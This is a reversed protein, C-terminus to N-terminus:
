ETQFGIRLGAFAGFGPTNNGYVEAYNQDLLNEIRGFLEINETLAYSGALSVLVFDDLTRRVSPFVGFDTDYQQGNYEIGLNVNARSEMFEYNAFLSAIHRPRRIETAGDPQGADLYTYAADIRFGEFPVTGVSVELGQRRSEGDLNVVTGVFGGMGDPVFVNAIEDELNQHFYTVDVVLREDLLTQEVGVDFGKSTEPQLNPNGIFDNFLGFIEIFTPNKVGTGYSGHLRTGTDEFLYAATTRWTTSDDFIENDDYRVGGSLFLRDWLAVRYEGAYGYRTEDEKFNPDGFVSPMGAQRYSEYEREAYLSVTHEANAVSPTEFFVNTQYDLIFREGWTDTSFLADPENDNYTDVVSTGLIHEWMGDFLTLKGQARGYWNEFNNENFPNDSTPDSDDFENTGDEFRGALDFELNDTPMLTGRLSGNWADFGDEEDGNDAINIGDTRLYSTNFVVNYTEGASGLHVAGAGTAFSGGEALGWAEFPMSAGATEFSVVGGLADSGYLASQPGRLVEITGVDYTLMHAFNYESGIAPDNVEIGDIRVMTQNGEAGRIRVQTLSGFSSSRNVSIGPVRRLVEGAHRQQSDEVQEGTVISAASGVAEAPVPVQSATVYTDPLTQDEDKDQAAFAPAALLAALALGFLAPAATQRDRTTAPRFRYASRDKRHQTM